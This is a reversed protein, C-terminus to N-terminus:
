KLLKPIYSNSMLFKINKDNLENCLQFLRQHNNLDFGSANYSIFSKTNEQSYPPDLYVFDNPQPDSLAQKFSQSTFVVNQILSSVALIHQEDFIAPNKYNGFPVNFGNPEERYVGRFCTKNMFLLMASAILKSKQQFTLTNFRSRIWYYYSEQSTIAEPHTTPKRNITTGEIDNFTTVLKNLEQLLKAPKSKIHIYFQIIHPNIDSACINGSLTINNAKIHSLLTLLVSGGGLFPEYYNHIQWPFKNTIQAIIQTKGDVWKLIPKTIPPDQLSLTQLTNTLEDM